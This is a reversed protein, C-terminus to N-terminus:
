VRRRGRIFLGGVCLLLMTAPEPVVEWDLSVGDVVPTVSFGFTNGFDAWGQADGGTDIYIHLNADFDLTHGVIAAFALSLEGTDFSHDEQYRISEGIRETGASDDHSAMSSINSVTRWSESWGSVYSFESFPAGLSHAGLGGSAWFSAQSPSSPGKGADTQIAYDYVDLGATLDASSWGSGPWSIAEAHLAGGLRVTIVLTTTDGEALGSTGPSVTLRNSLRTAMSAFYSVPPSDPTSMVQGSAGMRLNAADAYGSTLGFSEGNTVTWGYGVGGASSQYSVYSDSTGDAEILVFEGDQYYGVGSEFEVGAVAPLSLATLVLVATRGAACIGRPGRARGRGTREMCGPVRKM